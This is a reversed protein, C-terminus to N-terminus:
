RKRWDRGAWWTHHWRWIEGPLDGLNCVWVLVLYSPKWWQKVSQTHSHSSIWMTIWSLILDSHATYETAWDHRVRQLGMPSYSALNRQGHFKGPLLVPSTQWKRSWPIKSVWPHFGHIKNRRCQCAYENLSLWWPLGPPYFWPRFGFRPKLVSTRQRKAKSSRPFATSVSDALYLDKKVQFFFLNM